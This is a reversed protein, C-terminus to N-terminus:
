TTWWNPPVGHLVQSALVRAIGELLLAAAAVPLLALALGIGWAYEKLSERLSRAHRM